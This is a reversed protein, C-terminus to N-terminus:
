FIFTNENDNIRFEDINSIGDVCGCFINIDKPPQEYIADLAWSLFHFDSATHLEMRTLKMVSTAVYLELFGMRM